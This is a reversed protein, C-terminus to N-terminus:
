PCILSGTDCCSFCSPNERRCRSCYDAFNERTVKEIRCIGNICKPMSVEETYCDLCPCEVGNCNNLWWTEFEEKTAKNVTTEQCTTCCHNDSEPKAILFCDSNSSCSPSTLKILQNSNLIKFFIFFFLLLLITFVLIKRKNTNSFIM